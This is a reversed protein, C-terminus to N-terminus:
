TGSELLHAESNSQRLQQKWDSAETRPPLQKTTRISVNETVGTIAIYTVNACRGNSSLPSLLSIRDTM